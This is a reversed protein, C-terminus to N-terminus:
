TTSFARTSRIKRRRLGCLRRALLTTFGTFRPSSWVVVNTKAAGDVGMVEGAFPKAKVKGQKEPASSKDSGITAPKEPTAAAKDQAFVTTVFAVAILVALVAMVIKKM